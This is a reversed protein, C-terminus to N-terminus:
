VVQHRVIRRDAIGRQSVADHAERFLRVTRIQDVTILGSTLADDLAHNNHAIEDVFDVLQAELTPAEGPAYEAPASADSEPQHKIIGERVEGTLTLGASQ